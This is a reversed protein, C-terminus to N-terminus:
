CLRNDGWGYVDNSTGLSLCHAYGCVVDVM